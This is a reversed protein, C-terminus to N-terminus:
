SMRSSDRDINWPVSTIAPKTSLTALERTLWAMGRGMIEVQLLGDNLYTQNLDTIELEGRLSPKVQRAREVVTSDYFYLGTM